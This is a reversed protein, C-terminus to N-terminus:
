ATQLKGSGVAIFESEENLLWEHLLGRYEDLKQMAADVHAKEVSNFSVTYNSGIVRITFLVNFHDAKEPIKRYKVRGISAISHRSLTSYRGIGELDSMHHLFHIPATIINLM